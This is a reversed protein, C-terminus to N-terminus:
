IHGPFRLRIGPPPHTPSPFRGGSSGWRVEPSVRPSFRNLGVYVLMKRKRCALSEPLVPDINQWCLFRPSHSAPSMGNPLQRASSRAHDRKIRIGHCQVLGPNRVTANGLELLFPLPSLSNQAV